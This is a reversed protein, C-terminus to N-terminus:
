LRGTEPGFCSHPPPSFQQEADLRSGANSEQPICLQQGALPGPQGHVATV